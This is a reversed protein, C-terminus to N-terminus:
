ILSDRCCQSVVTTMLRHDFFPRHKVGMCGVDAVARTARCISPLPSCHLLGQFLVSLAVHEQDLDLLRGSSSLWDIGLISADNERPALQATVSMCNLPIVTLRLQELSRPVSSIQHQGIDSAKLVFLMARDNEFGAPVFHAPLSFVIGSAVCRCSISPTGRLSSPNPVRVSEPARFGSDRRSLPPM